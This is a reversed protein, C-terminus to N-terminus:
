NPLQDQPTYSCAFFRVIKVVGKTDSNRIAGGLSKIQRPVYGLSVYIIEMRCGQGSVLSTNLSTTM